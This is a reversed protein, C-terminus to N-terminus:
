KLLGTFCICNSGNQPHPSLTLTGESDPHEKSKLHYFKEVWTGAEKQKYIQPAGSAALAWSSGFAVPHFVDISRLSLGTDADGLPNTLVVDSPGVRLKQILLDSITGSLKCNWTRLHYRHRQGRHSISVWCASIHNLLPTSALLFPGMLVPM